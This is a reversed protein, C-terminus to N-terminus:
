AADNYEDFTRNAWHISSTLSLNGQKLPKPKKESYGTNSNITEENSKRALRERYKRALGEISFGETSPRNPWYKNM